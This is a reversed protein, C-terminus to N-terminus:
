LTQKKTKLMIHLLDDIVHIVHRQPLYKKQGMPFEPM